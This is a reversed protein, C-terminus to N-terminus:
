PSSTALAPQVLVDGNASYVQLGSMQIAELHAGRAIFHVEEGSAALKAGFYGGVGGAGVIAIKMTLFPLLPPGIAKINSRRQGLRSWYSGWSSEVSSMFRASRRGFPAASRAAARM